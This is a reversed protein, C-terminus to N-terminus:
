YVEAAVRQCGWQNDTELHISYPYQDGDTDTHVNLVNHFLEPGRNTVPFDSLRSDYYNTPQNTPQYITRAARDSAVWVCTAAQDRGTICGKAWGFKLAMVGHSGPNASHNKKM